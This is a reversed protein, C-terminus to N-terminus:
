RKPPKAEAGAENEAAMATNAMDNLIQNIEENPPPRMSAYGWRGRGEGCAGQACPLAAEMEDRIAELFGCDADPDPALITFPVPELRGVQQLYSRLTTLDVRM